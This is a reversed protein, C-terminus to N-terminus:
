RASGRLLGHRELWDLAEDLGYALGTVVGCLRMRTRTESQRKEHETFKEGSLSLRKLELAFVQSVDPSVSAIVIVDPIGPEVGLGIHIGARRGRM